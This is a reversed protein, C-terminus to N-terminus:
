FGAVRLFLEEAVTRRFVRSRAVSSAIKRRRKWYTYDTHYCAWPPDRKAGSRKLQRFLDGDPDLLCIEPINGVASQNKVDRRACCTKPSFVSPRSYHKNEFHSLAGDKTVNKKMKRDAKYANM